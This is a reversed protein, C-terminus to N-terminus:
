SLNKILTRPDLLNETEMRLDHKIIVSTRAKSIKSRVPYKNGRQKEVTMIHVKKFTVRLVGASM